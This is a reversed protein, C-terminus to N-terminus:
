DCSKFGRFGMCTLVVFLMIKKSRRELLCRLSRNPFLRVVSEGCLFCRLYRGSYPSAARGQSVDAKYHWTCKLVKAFGLSQGQQLICQARLSSEM